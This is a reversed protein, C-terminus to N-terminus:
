NGIQLSRRPTEALQASNKDFALVRWRLKKDALKDKLWSPAQYFTTGPLLAASLVQAGASDEIELRYLAADKVESWAFAPPKDAPQTANDAPTLLTLSANSQEPASEANIELNLDFTPRPSVGITAGNTFNRLDSLENGRQRNDQLSYNWRYGLRWKEFQWDATVSHNTGAFDPISAPDIEFGGNIPIAAGAQYVRNFNWGVRPLLKSPRQPDGFISVLPVAFALTHGRTLSKLISPIDALNDNFRLHAYQATFEGLSGNVLVENSFKDAQTSAGLSRFLPDVREHRVQITLNLKKDKLVERDKFLDYAVDLYHANRWLPRVEVTRQNQDLLADAPNFFQNRTWGGELRFRQSADTAILRFGFGRSREADNIAGQSFNNLPQIWGSMVGAELRLAGPRKALIEFGLAASTLQHRRKAIGFFNDYGVISTGNMLALSVDLRTNIPAALTMGRSSFGNVLHRLAGYSTHGVLYKAKGIQNQMLYSPLDVRPATDGLAGFRLAEQRFSSGVFDFQNQASFMRRAMEWRLGGTFTLDTFVIRQSIGAAPFSSQAMQSKLGLTIAPTFALKDFGLRRKQPQQSDATRDTQGNDTQEAPTTETQAAPKEETLKEETAKNETEPQGTKENSVKLRLRAIEKWEDNSSVLYVTLASEGAPLPLAVPDYVLSNETAKFLNSVDMSGILIALRGEEKKLARSVRLEIAARPAVQDAFTATVTFENQNQALVGALPLIQWLTIIAAIALSALAGLKLITTRDIVSLKLM